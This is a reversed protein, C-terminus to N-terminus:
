ALRQPQLQPCCVHVLVRPYALNVYANGSGISCGYLFAYLFPLVVPPRPAYDGSLCALEPACNLWTQVVNAM